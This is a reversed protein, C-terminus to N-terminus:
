RNGLAIGFATTVLRSTLMTGLVGKEDIGLIKCIAKGVAPGILLGAAGGLISGLFGEEIPEGKQLKEVLINYATEAEQIQEPTLGKVQEAEFIASGKSYKLDLYTPFEKKM